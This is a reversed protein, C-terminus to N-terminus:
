KVFVTVIRPNEDNTFRFLERGVLSPVREEDGSFKDEPMGITERRLSFEQSAPTPM